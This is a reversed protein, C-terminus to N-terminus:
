MGAGTYLKLGKKWVFLVILNLIVIWFLLNGLAPLLDGGTGMIMKVPIFTVYPFPTYDLIKVAWLPFLDLPIMNGSLLQIATETIVALVWTEELWFTLLGILYQLSFWFIGVFVSLLLGKLLDQAIIDHFYESFTTVLILLCFLAIFLQIVLRSLFNTVQFEWLSFPYILYTSVRGMRIDESLKGFNYSRAILMVIMTWLHYTLMDSLSYNGIMTQMDGQFISYWLSVKVFFFVLVPGIVMLLFNVRYVLMNSWHVKITQWWKLM